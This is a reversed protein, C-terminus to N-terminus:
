NQKNEIQVSKNSPRCTALNDPILAVVADYRLTKLSLSLTTWHCDFATICNLKLFINYYTNIYYLAFDDSVVDGAVNYSPLEPGEIWGPTDYGEVYIEVSSGEIGADNKGGTVVLIREKGLDLSGCGHNYRPNSLTPGESWTSTMDFLLHSWTKATAGQGFINGGILWVLYESVKILCHGAM